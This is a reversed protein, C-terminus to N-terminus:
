EGGTPITERETVIWDLRQDFPGRPVEALEQCAYAIGIATVSGQARLLALTRDYFGGGYGLRFGARDFALMPVLLVDPECLPKNNHPERTGFDAVVLEDGPEWRRFLLPRGPGQMVPLAVMCGREHLRAMAPRTDIENALPWFASVVSGDNVLSGGGLRATLKSAAECVAQGLARQERARRRAESKLADLAKETMEAIDAVLSTEAKKCNPAEPADCATGGPGHGKQSGRHGAM